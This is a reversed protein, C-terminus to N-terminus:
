DIKKVNLLQWGAPVKSKLEEFSAAELEELGDRKEYTGAATITTSGKPMTVRSLTLQWGEPRNEELREAIDELGHGEVDTQQSEIFRIIGKVTM